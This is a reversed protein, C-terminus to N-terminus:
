DLTDCLAKWRCGPNKSHVSRSSKLFAEENGLLLRRLWIIMHLIFRGLEIGEILSQANPLSYEVNLGVELYQIGLDLMYVDHQIPTPLTTAM